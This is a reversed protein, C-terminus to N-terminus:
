GQGSGPAVGDQGQNPLEYAYVLWSTGTKSVTIRLQPTQQKAGSTNNIQQHGTVLFTISSGGFGTLADVSATGQSVEHDQVRQQLMAPTPGSQQIQPALNSFALAELRQAYAQPNENYAYTETAVM